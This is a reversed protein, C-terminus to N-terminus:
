DAPVYKRILKLLLEYDVPKVACDDFGMSGPDGEGANFYATLAVVPTKKGRSEDIKRIRSTTEIGDMGPLQIDMLVLDIDGHESFYKLAEFGDPVCATTIGKLQLMKCLVMRNIRDDEVVLINIKRTMISDGHFAKSYVM